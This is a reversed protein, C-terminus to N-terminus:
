QSRYFYFSFFVSLKKKVDGCRSSQLCRKGWASISRGASLISHHLSLATDHVFLLVQHGPRISVCTSQVDGIAGPRLYVSADQVHSHRWVLM